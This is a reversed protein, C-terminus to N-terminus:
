HPHGSHEPRAARASAILHFCPTAIPPWQRPVNALKIALSNRSKQTTIRIERYGHCRDKLGENAKQLEEISQQLRKEAEAFKRRNWSDSVLLVAEAGHEYANSIKRAM